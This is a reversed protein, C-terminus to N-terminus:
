KIFIQGINSTHLTWHCYLKGTGFTENECWFKLCYVTWIIAWLAGSFANMRAPNNVTLVAIGSQQQKQLEM